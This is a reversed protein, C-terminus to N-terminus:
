GNRGHGKGTSDIQHAAPKQLGITHGFGIGNSKQTGSIMIGNVLRMKQGTGSCRAQSHFHPDHILAVLIHGRFFEALYNATAGKQHVPVQVERVCRLFRKAAAPHMGTIDTTEVPLTIQVDSVALFIHDDASPFINIRTFDLIYQKFM